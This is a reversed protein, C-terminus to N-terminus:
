DLNKMVQAVIEFSKLRDEFHYPDSMVIIEQAQTEKLYKKLAMKIQETDGVILSGFNTEIINQEQVTWLADMSKVPPQAPRLQNRILGLYTQHITTAIYKAHEETEAAIIPVGVMVYPESLHISPKFESRYIALAQLMLRPAFHGAFSYPRGLRAALHASYLSSGLIWLPIETNAGPIAKLKEHSSEESFFYELEEILVAFDIEQTNRRLARMTNQDSGPARGLGLDIRKPYLAELTAFQEAIVIPSHNPLMIGGSGVRISKTQSAIHGILVSTAASAVGELSHHEALWFRNYGWAEARQALTVSNKFAQPINTNNSYRALDLVSYKVM